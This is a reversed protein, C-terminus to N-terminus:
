FTAVAATVMKYLLVHAFFPSDAETTGAREAGVGEVRHSQNQGRARLRPGSGWEPGM